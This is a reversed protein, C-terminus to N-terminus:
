LGKLSSNELFRYTLRFLRIVPSQIETRNLFDGRLGDGRVRMAGSADVREYMFRHLAESDGQPPDLNSGSAVGSRSGEKIRIPDSCGKNGM